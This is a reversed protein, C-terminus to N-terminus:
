MSVNQIHIPLSWNAILMVDYRLAYAHYKPHRNLFIQSANQIRHLQKPTIAIFCKEDSKRSKVEIFVLTNNKAVIIDIEGLKTKYRHAIIKYGKIILIICAIWEGIYGKVESQNM